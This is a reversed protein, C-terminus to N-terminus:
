KRLLYTNMYKGDLRPVSEFKASEEGVFKIFRNLVDTGLEPHQKERGSFQVSLKVRCGRDLFDKAQKAKIQLDHDQICIGFRLEKIEVKGNNENKKERKKQEYILKNYDMIKCVPPNASEAVLVLDLGETKAKLIADRTNIIGLKTGTSSIVLVERASIRENIMAQKQEPQQFPVM